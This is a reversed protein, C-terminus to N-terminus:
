LDVALFGCMCHCLGTLCFHLGCSIYVHLSVVLAQHFWKPWNDKCKDFASLQIWMEFTTCDVRILLIHFGFVNRALDHQKYVNCHM